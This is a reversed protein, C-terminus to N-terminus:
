RLGQTTVDHPLLVYTDYSVARNHSCVVCYLVTCCRSKFANDNTDWSTQSFVRLERLAEQGTSFLSSRVKVAQLEESSVDGCYKHSLDSVFSVIGSGPAHNFFVGSGAPLSFSRSATYFVENRLKNRPVEM